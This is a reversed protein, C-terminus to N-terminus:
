YNGYDQEGQESRELRNTHFKKPMESPQTPWAKHADKYGYRTMLSGTVDDWFWEVGDIFMRLYGIHVRNGNRREFEAMHSIKDQVADEYPCPEQEIYIFRDKLNKLMFKAEMVDVKEQFTALQVCFTGEKIKTVNVVTANVEMQMWLFKQITEKIQEPDATRPFLGNILVRNNRKFKKAM